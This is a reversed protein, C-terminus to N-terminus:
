SALCIGFTFQDCSLLSKFSSALRKRSPVVHGAVQRVYSWCIALRPPCAITSLLQFPLHLDPESRALRREVGPGTFHTVASVVALPM